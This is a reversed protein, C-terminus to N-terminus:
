YVRIKAIFSSGSGVQSQRLRFEGDLAECIRRTLYLGIGHGGFRRTITQDAQKFPLFIEEQKESQIGCGTDTVQFDLYTGDFGVCLEVFGTDTFKIANSIMNNLVQRIRTPDSEITQPLNQPVSVKLLIGKQEAQPRFSALTESLLESLSFVVKEIRMHGSNAKSIDLIEDVIKLLHHSNKEILRIFEQRDSHDLASDDLLRIFGLIVNLPTRMEHSIYALFAHDTRNTM